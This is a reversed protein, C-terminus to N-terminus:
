ECTACLRPLESLAEALRYPGRARPIVEVSRRCASCDPYSSKIQPEHSICRVQGCHCGGTIAMNREETPQHIHALGLSGARTRGLIAASAHADVPVFLPM